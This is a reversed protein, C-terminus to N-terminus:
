DPNTGPTPDGIIPFSFDTTNKKKVDGGIDSVARIKVIGSWAIAGALNPIFIFPLKEGRNEHVWLEISDDAYSQQITGDLSYTTTDQGDETSGDLMYIDDDSEVSSKITTKITDAAFQRTSGTEGIILSGPGLTRTM